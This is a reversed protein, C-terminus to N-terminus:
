TSSTAAPIISYHYIFGDLRCPNNASPCLTMTMMTTQKPITMCICVTFTEIFPISASQWGFCHPGTPYKIIEMGDLAAAVLILLLLLCMLIFWLKQDYHMKRWQLNRWNRKSM